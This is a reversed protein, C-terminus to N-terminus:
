DTPARGPKGKMIDKELLETLSVIFDTLVGVLKTPPPVTWLM